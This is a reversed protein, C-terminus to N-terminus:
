KTKLFDALYGLKMLWREDCLRDGLAFDDDILFIRVEPKMEFLRILTKSRSLWRVETRLLLSTHLSGIDGFLMKFLRTNKPRSKVFNIKKVSEDLVEKLSPPMKKVALVHCHLVCQSSSCEKVKQKIRSIVDSTKGTMAKAGDTSVDVCNDWPICSVTFIEDILKFIEAGSTNTPLSKCLLLDEHFSKLYQSRVFVILIALGAVDTSEDVQLSFKTCKIRSILTAKVNEALDGIRRSITNNSLPVTGVLETAKGGLMCEVIDKVCPKILNEASTHAVGAQAVRYSALYSAM